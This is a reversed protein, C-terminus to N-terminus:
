QSVAAAQNKPTALYGSVHNKDIVNVVIEYLDHGDKGTYFQVPEDLNKDKKEINRDDASVNLTYRSHKDDVKKLQLKVTSLLTPKAGKQLNFEYYNRDGKHKLIELQSANTAILGSMKGEDGMMRQMQEKASALDSKTNAVDTKVGGVDTKVSSVETSVAGVQKATAAQEAALQDTKARESAQTALISQTRLEIQKQAIGVSQGLTESTAKLRANTADLKAVLDTNAQEAAALKKETASLHNSLGYCWGLAGLAALLAAGVVGIFAGSMSREPVLEEESM